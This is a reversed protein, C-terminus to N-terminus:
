KNKDHLEEYVSAYHLALIADDARSMVVRSNTNKSLKSFWVSHEGFLIDLYLKMKKVEYDNKMYSEVMGTEVMSLVGIGGDFVPIPDVGISGSFYTTYGTIGSPSFFISGGIGGSLGIEAGAMTGIGVGFNIDIVPGRYEDLFSSKGFSAPSSLGYAYGKYEKITVGLLFDSLAAGPAGPMGLSGNSTFTGNIFYAHEMTAFNYVSEIASLWNLMAPAPVALGTGEIYAPARYRSPGVYCGKKGTVYKGFENNDMPQILYYSDICKEYMAKDPMSQCWTPTIIHGSPDVNNVPSSGVYNWRNLTTPQQYNGRWTDKNIFRGSGPAYYRARLYLLGTQADYKQGTYGFNAEADGFKELEEGFPTFSHALQLTAEDDVMQRVSGLVDPLYYGTQTESVQAVVTNCYLFINEGDALINVM